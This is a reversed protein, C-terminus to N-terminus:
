AAIIAVHEATTDSHQLEVPWHKPGFPLRFAAVPGFEPAAQAVASESAAKPDHRLPGGPLPAAFFHSYFEGARRRRCAHQAPEHRRPTIVEGLGVRDRHCYDFRTHRCKRGGAVQHLPEMAHEPDAASAIPRAVSIPRLPTSTQNESLQVGFTNSRTPWFFLIVRRQGLAAGSRRCRLILARRRHLRGLLLRADPHYLTNDYPIKHRKM